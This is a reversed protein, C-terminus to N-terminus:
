TGRTSLLEAKGEEEGKAAAAPLLSAYWGGCGAVSETGAATDELSGGAVRERAFEM